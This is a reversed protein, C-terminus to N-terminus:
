QLFMLLKSFALKFLSFSFPAQVSTSLRDVKHFGFVIFVLIDLTVHAKLPFVLIVVHNHDTLHAIGSDMLSAMTSIDDVLDWVSFPEAISTCYEFLVCAEFTRIDLAEQAILSLSNHLFNIIALVDPSM